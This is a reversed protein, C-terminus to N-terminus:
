DPSQAEELQKLRKQIDKIIENQSEIIKQQEKIAEVLYPTLKGYEVGDIEGQDNKQAIQPLVKHVEEAIFGFDAKGGQDENWTYDVGRLKQVISLAGELVRIDHKWRRSSYNVFGQAYVNPHAADGGGPSDRFYFNNSAYGLFDESTGSHGFSISNGTDGVYAVDPAFANPFYIGGNSYTIGTATFTGNVQIAPTAFDGYILPMATVGNHIYLKNDGAENSGAFFGLFVNGSGENSLGAGIGVMVNNSAVGTGGSSDGILVNNSGTSNGGTAVGIATNSSGLMSIGAGDGLFVNRSGSVNDRGAITGLFVNSTGDQHLFGAQSGIITNRRGTSNIRGAARGLFTNSDGTNNNGASEGYFTNTSGPVILLDNNANKSFRAIEVGLADFRIIDDDSTKEVQIKTDLDNDSLEGVNGAVLEVWNSGDYFWFSLTMNDFVLLGTAPTVINTRQTTSMRPILMGKNTSKVDLMSSVDPDSNDSNVSVQALLHVSSMMLTAVILLYIKKM